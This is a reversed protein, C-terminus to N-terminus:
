GIVFDYSLDASQQLLKNSFASKIQLSIHTQKESPLLIMQVAEDFATLLM